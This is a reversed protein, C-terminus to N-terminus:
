PSDLWEDEDNYRAITLIVLIIIKSTVANLDGSGTTYEPPKARALIFFDFKYACAYLHAISSKTTM